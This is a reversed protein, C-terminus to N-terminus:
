VYEDSDPSLSLTGENIKKNILDLVKSQAAQVDSLPRPKGKLGDEIDLKIGTSVLSLIKDTISKDVTRLALGFTELDIDRLLGVLQSASCYKLDELTVMSGELRSAMDPDQLRIQEILKKAENASLAKLMNVAEDFGGKFM